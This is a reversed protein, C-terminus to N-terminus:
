PKPRPLLLNSQVIGKRHLFYRGAEVLCGLGYRMSPLFRISSAEAFYRTPCSIEGIKFDAAIMQMFFQNDFVFNDSNDQYRIAELVKRSYARYGTHYESFKRDCLINQVFTLIRNIVYKYRPICGIVAGTGLIRSGIAADFEGLEILSALAPILKPSYQYDPHLMVVIDAGSKLALDYCTKQNAGYGLNRTHSVPSLGLELAVQSTQDTSGDDVLIINDVVDKPIERFTQELTSAANFAPMVICISQNNLM